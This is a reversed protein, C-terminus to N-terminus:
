IEYSLFGKFTFRIMKNVVTRVLHAITIHCDTVVAIVAYILTYDKLINFVSIAAM